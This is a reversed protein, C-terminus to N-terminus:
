RIEATEPQLQRTPNTRNAHLATYCVLGYATAWALGFIAMGSMENWLYAYWDIQYQVDQYAIYPNDLAARGYSHLLCWVLSVLYHVVMATSTKLHLRLHLICTIATPSFCLLEPWEGDSFSVGGRYAAFHLAVIATFALLDIIRFRRRGLPKEHPCQM